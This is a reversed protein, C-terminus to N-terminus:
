EKRGYKQKILHTRKFSFSEAEEPTLENKQLLEEVSILDDKFKDIIEPDSKCTIFLENLFIELYAGAELDTLGSEMRIFRAIDSLLFNFGFPGTYDKDTKSYYGNIKSIIDELFLPKKVKLFRENVFNVLQNQREINSDPKDDEEVKNDSQSVPTEPTVTPTQKSLKDFEDAIETFSESIDKSSFINIIKDKTNPDINTSSLLSQWNFKKITLGSDLDCKKEELYKILLSNENQGLGLSQKATEIDHVNSDIDNLIITLKGTTSDKVVLYNDLKYWGQDRWLFGKKILHANIQAITRLVKIQEETSLNPLVEKITLKDFNEIFPMVVASDPEHKGVKGDLYQELDLPSRISNRLLMTKEWENDKERKRNVMGVPYNIALGIGTDTNLDKLVHAVIGTEIIRADSTTINKQEGNNGELTFLKLAIESAPEIARFMFGKQALELTKEFDPTLNHPHGELGGKHNIIEDDKFGSAFQFVVGMHPYLSDIPQHNQIEIEPSDM